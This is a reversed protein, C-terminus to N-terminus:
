DPQIHLTNILEAYKKLETKILADSEAPTNGIVDSGTLQIQATLETTRLIRIIERSLKDIVPRPTRSPVLVMQWQGEIYTPLGSEAVTPIDPMAAIRARGTVALVKIKGSKLHPQLPVSSAMLLNIEGGLLAIIAPGVDKYPVQTLKIGAMQAFRETVIHIANGGSGSGYNIYGPKARALEILQKVSTVPLSPHVALVYPQWLVTTVGAFDKASNFPLQPYVAPNIAFTTAVLLMTYGDPASRAVVETGISGSAGPRSDVIVNQGWAETLKQGILRALFDSTGGISYPVVWRIPKAPYNQALVSTPVLIGAISITLLWVCRYAFVM